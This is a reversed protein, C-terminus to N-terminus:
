ENDYKEDYEHKCRTEPEHADTEDNENQKKSMMKMDEHNGNEEHECITLMQLMDMLKM